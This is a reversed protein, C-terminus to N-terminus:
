LASSLRVAERVDFPEPKLDLAGSEIKSLDLLANVVSLLHQGAEHILRVYERQREDQLAGFMERSLVDSFGLIANLPTRLEHSVSALMRTRMLESQQAKDNQQALAAELAAVRGDNRVVATLGGEPRGTLEASFHAYESKGGSRAVRLRLTIFRREAGRRMDALAGLYPVRDGLHIRDFLGNGLLLDGPLGFLEQTRGSAERVEGGEDLRLFAAEIMEELAPAQAPITDSEKVLLPRVRPWVSAAYALVVLWHCAIAWGAMDSAIAGAAGLGIAAALVAAATGWRAAAKTRGVLVSELPLAALLAVLPSHVGGAGAVACGLLVAGSGLAFAEALRGRGTSAALLVIVWGLCLVACVIAIASAGGLLLSAPLALAAALLFPAALMTAIFRQQRASEAADDIRPHVFRACAAALGGKDEDSISETSSM